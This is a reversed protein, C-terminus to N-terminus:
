LLGPSNDTGEPHSDLDPAGSVALLGCYEAVRGGLPIYVHSWMWLNSPRNIGSPSLPAALSPCGVEQHALNFRVADESVLRRNEASPSGSATLSSGAINSASNRRLSAASPLICGATASVALLRAM